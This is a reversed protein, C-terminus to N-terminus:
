EKRIFISNPRIPRGTVPWFVDDNDFVAGSMNYSKSVIDNFWSSGTIIMAFEKETIREKIELLLDRAQKSEKDRLIDRIAVQHAYSKKGALRSLQAHSPIFVNGDVKRVLDVLRDGAKKDAKSALLHQPEYILTMFQAMCLLLVVVPQWSLSDNVSDVKGLVSDDKARSQGLKLLAGVGFGFGLVVATYGPILTNTYSGTRIRILWSAGVLGGFVIFYFWGERYRASKFQYILWFVAFGIAISLFRGMDFLWFSAIRYPVIDHHSPLNFVYYNYWGDSMTNFILTSLGIALVSTLPFIIKRWGRAFLVSYFCLALVVFLGTQKALFSLSAIISASFLLGISLGSRLVYISILGLLMFLSDPRALDYWAGAAQYLAAYLGTSLMGCYSSRTERRVIMFILLFCGLSAIFSVLRLPFMGVGAIKAVPACVYYYLPTYTFPIFDLSPKVYIPDGDVVRQVHEVLGGEMWELAYAYHLHQYAIFVYMAVYLLSGLLVMYKILTTIGSRYRNNTETMIFDSKSFNIVIWAVYAM